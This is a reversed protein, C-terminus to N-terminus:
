MMEIWRHMCSMAMFYLDFIDYVIGKGDAPYVLKERMMAAKPSDPYKEM